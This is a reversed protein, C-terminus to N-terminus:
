HKRADRFRIYCYFRLLHILPDIHRNELYELNTVIVPCKEEPCSEGQLGNLLCSLLNAPSVFVINKYFILQMKLLIEFHTLM